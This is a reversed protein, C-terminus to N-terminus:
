AFVVSFTRSRGLISSADHPVKCSVFSALHNHCVSKELTKHVVVFFVL